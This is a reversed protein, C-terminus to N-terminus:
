NIETQFQAVLGYSLWPCIKHCFSDEIHSSCVRIMFVSSILPDLPCSGSELQALRTSCAAAPAESSCVWDLRFCVVMLLDVRHTRSSASRPSPPREAEDGPSNQWKQISSLISLLELLCGQQRKLLKHVSIWFNPCM